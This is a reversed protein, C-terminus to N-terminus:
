KFGNIFTSDIDLRSLKTTQNHTKIVDGCRAAFNAIDLTTLKLM